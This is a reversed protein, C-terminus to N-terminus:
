SLYSAREVHALLLRWRGVLEDKWPQRLTQVNQPRTRVSGAELERIQRLRLHAEDKCGFLYRTPVEAQQM